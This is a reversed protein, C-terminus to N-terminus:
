KEIKKFERELEKSMETMSSTDMGAATMTNDKVFKLISDDLDSKFQADMNGSLVVAVYFKKFHQIYIKYLDYEITELSQDKQEFADNVFSKIATLMGAIMDKDITDSRSYSGMLLGSDEEIIFVELVEARNANKILSESYKAGGFMAKIRLLIQDFSFADQLQADIRETLVQIEKQIFKKIMQGIIPYLVQVVEDRSEGIQTKLTQTIAPGLKEPMVQMLYGLIEQLEEDPIDRNNLSEEIKINLDKLKENFAMFKQNEEEFLITKLATLGSSEQM